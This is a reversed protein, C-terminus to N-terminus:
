RHFGYLAKMSSLLSRNSSGIGRCVNMRQQWITKNWSTFREVLIGSRAVSSSRTQKSYFVVQKPTQLVQKPLIRSFQYIHYISCPRERWYKKSTRLHDLQELTRNKFLKPPKKQLMETLPDAIHALNHVFRCYANCLSLLSRRKWKKRPVWVEKLFSLRFPKSLFGVFDSLTDLTRSQPVFFNVNQYTCCFTQVLNLLINAGM